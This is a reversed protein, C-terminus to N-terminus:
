GTEGSNLNILMYYMEAKDLESDGFYKEQKGSELWNQLSRDTCSACKMRRGEVFYFSDDPTIPANCVDCIADQKRNSNAEWWKQANHKWYARLATAGDIISEDQAHTPQLPAIPSVFKHEIGSWTDKLERAATSGITQQIAQHIVQMAGTNGIEIGVQQTAAKAVGAFSKYKSYIDLLRSGYGALEEDSRCWAYMLWKDFDDKRAPQTNRLLALAETAEEPKMHSVYGTRLVEDRLIRIIFALNNKDPDSDDAREWIVRAAASRVNSYPDALLDALANTIDMTRFEKVFFIAAERVQHDPHSLYAMGLHRRIDDKDQREWYVRDMETAIRQPPQPNKDSFIRKLDPRQEVLLPTVGWKNQVEMLKSVPLRPQQKKKFLNRLFGM